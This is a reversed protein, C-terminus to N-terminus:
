IASILSFKLSAQGSENWVEAKLREIQAYDTKDVQLACRERAFYDRSPYLVFITVFPHLHQKECAYPIWITLNCRLTFRLTFVTSLSQM